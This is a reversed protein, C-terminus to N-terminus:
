NLFFYFKILNELYINLLLIILIKNFVILNIQLFLIYNGGLYYIFNYITKFAFDINGGIMSRGERIGIGEATEEAMEEKGEARAEGPWMGRNM